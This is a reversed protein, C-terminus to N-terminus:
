ISKSGNLPNRELPEVAQIVDLHLISDFSKPSRRLLLPQRLPDYDQRASALPWAAKKLSELEVRAEVKMITVVTTSGAARKILDRM